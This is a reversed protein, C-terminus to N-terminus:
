TVSAIRELNYMRAPRQRPVNQAPDIGIARYITILVKLRPLNYRRGETGEGRAISAGVAQGMRLGAGAIMASM